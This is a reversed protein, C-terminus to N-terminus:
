WGMINAYILTPLSRYIIISILSFIKTSLNLFLSNLKIVNKFVNFIFRKKRSKFNKLVTTKLNFTMKLDFKTTLNFKTTLSFNVRQFLITRYQDIRTFLMILCLCFSLIYVKKLKSVILHFCSQIVHSQSEYLQLAWLKKSNTCILSPESCISAPKVKKCFKGTKNAIKYDEVDNTPMTDKTIKVEIYDPNKTENEYACRDIDSNETQTSTSCFKLTLDTDDFLKKMCTLAEDLLKEDPTNTLNKAQTCLDVM